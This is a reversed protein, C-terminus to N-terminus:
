DVDQKSRSIGLFQDQIRIFADVVDPDFHTGRSELIIEVAKKHPIEPKYVRHSILADYVDALAMLRASVPIIDGSQGDPYGTGDWKEHHSYTIERAFALFRIETGLRHEAQLVANKDLVTHTKMLNFEADTLRDNKLLINDPVGVKGIDHLPASKVILRINNEDDLVGRFRSHHRLEEALLRVYQQTRIIHNGTENDRTEALSTLALVTAEQIAVVERTREQVENELLANKDKLYDRFRKLELHTQLRARLIPPSIPKTIYDVAGLKFGDIEDQVESKATLFIVPIDQTEPNKKLLRCAQYGDMVPM